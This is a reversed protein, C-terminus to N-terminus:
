ENEDAPDSSESESAEEESDATEETGDDTQTEDSTEDVEDGVAQGIPIGNEIIEDETLPRFETVEDDTYWLMNGEDTFGIKAYQAVGDVIVKYKGDKIEYENVVYSSVYPSGVIHAKTVSGTFEYVPYSTINGDEDYEYLSTDLPVWGGILKQNLEADEVATSDSCGAFACLALVAM